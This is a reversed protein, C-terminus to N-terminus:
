LGWLFAPIHTVHSLWQSSQNHVCAHNVMLPIICHMNKLNVIFAHYYSSSSQQPDIFVCLLLVFMEKRGSKVDYGGKYM